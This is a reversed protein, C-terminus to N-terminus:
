LREMDKSTNEYDDLEFDTSVETGRSQPDYNPSKKAQMNKYFLAYLTSSVIIIIGLWSWLNPLHHFILLDWFLSYIMQSYIVLSSRSTKKEKQIGLTLLLQMIFGSIGIIFFLFWQNLTQPIKFTTNPSFIIGFLSILFSIFAFYTVSMIAHARTGIHKIIIYISSAGCVGLLGFLSAVVRAKSSTSEVAEESKDSTSSNGDQHFLFTPRVVLVVGFLAVLGCVGEIKSYREKLIMAALIGTLTPTLFTIVIADSISLAKLSTYLGFVGFFGFSGRAILWKRVEPPGFPVHPISHRHFYMYLLTGIFTILMRVVLIQFPEIPDDEFAPDTELLKTSIVMVSNFFQSALLFYLGTNDPKESLTLRTETNSNNDTSPVPVSSQELTSTTKKGTPKNEPSGNDNYNDLDFELDFDLDENKTM